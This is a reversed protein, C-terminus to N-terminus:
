ARAREREAEREAEWQKFNSWDPPRYRQDRPGHRMVVKFWIIGVHADDSGPVYMGVTWDPPANPEVGHHRRPENRDRKWAKGITTATPLTCSYEPMSELEHPYLYLVLPRRKM